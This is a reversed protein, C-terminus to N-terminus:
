NVHYIVREWTTASNLGTTIGCRYGGYASGTHWCLRYSPNTSSTDCSARTVSDNGQAFGWSYSSSFYWGVGNAQNTCSATTSCDYLVNAREGMAAVTLLSNGVPRCGLLLRSANCATLITSVITSTM